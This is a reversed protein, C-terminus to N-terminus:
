VGATKMAAQYKAVKIKLADLDARQQSVEEGVLELIRLAAEAEEMKAAADVITQKMDELM